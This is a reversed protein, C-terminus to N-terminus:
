QGKDRVTEQSLSPLFTLHFGWAFKTVGSGMAFLPPVSVRLETESALDLLRGPHLPPPRPSCCVYPCRESDLAEPAACM